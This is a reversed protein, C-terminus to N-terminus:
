AADSQPAPWLDPRLEHRPVGTEREISIAMEASVRAGRKVLASIAQQTVNIKEALATQSGAAEIARQLAASM